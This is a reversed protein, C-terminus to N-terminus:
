KKGIQQKSTLIIKSLIKIIEDVKNKLSKPEPYNKCRECLLLWYRTESAEKIAVKMKHIFDERSEPFQAEYVNAGISTGSKLLQRSIVFKRNKELEECFSVIDISFDLVKELIVNVSM